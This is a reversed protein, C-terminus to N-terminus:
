GRSILVKRIRYPLPKDAAQLQMPLVQKGCQEPLDYEHRFRIMDVM